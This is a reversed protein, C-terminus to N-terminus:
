EAKSSNTYHNANEVFLNHHYTFGDVNNISCYIINNDILGIYFEDINNNYRYLNAMINDVYYSSVLEADDLNINLM